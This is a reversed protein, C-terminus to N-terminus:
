HPLTDVTPGMTQPETAPTPPPIQTSESRVKKQKDAAATHTAYADVRTPASRGIPGCLAASRLPPALPCLPAPAKSPPTFFFSFRIRGFISRGKTSFTEHPYHTLTREIRTNKTLVTDRRPVQEWLGHPGVNMEASLKGLICLSYVSGECLVWVMRRIPLGPKQGEVRGTSGIRIRSRM